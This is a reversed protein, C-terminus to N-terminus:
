DAGVNVHKCKSFYIIIKLETIHTNNPDHKIRASKEVNELMNCCRVVNELTEHQHVLVIRTHQAPHTMPPGNDHWQRQFYPSHVILAFM